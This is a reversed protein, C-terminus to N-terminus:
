KGRMRRIAAGLQFGALMVAPKRSPQTAESSELVIEPVKYYPSTFQRPQVITHLGDSTSIGGFTYAGYLENYFFAAPTIPFMTSGIDSVAMYTKLTESSFVFDASGRGRLASDKVAGLALAPFTKTSIVDSFVINDAMDVTTPIKSFLYSASAQSFDYDSLTIGEIFLMINDTSNWSSVDASYSFVPIRAVKEGASNYFFAYDKFTMQAM